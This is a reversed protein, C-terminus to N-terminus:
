ERWGGTRADIVPCWVDWEWYIIKLKREITVCNITERGNGRDTDNQLCKIPSKRIERKEEEENDHSEKRETICMCVCVLYNTFFSKSKIM